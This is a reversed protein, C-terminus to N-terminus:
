PAYSDNCHQQGGLCRVTDENRTLTLATTIPVYGRDCSYSIRQIYMRIAHSVQGFTTTDIAIAIETM